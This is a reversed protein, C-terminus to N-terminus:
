SRGRVRKQETTIKHTHTRAHTHTSHTHADAHAHPTGGHPNAHAPTQARHTHPSHTIWPPPAAAHAHAKRTHAHTHIDYHGGAGHIRTRAPQQAHLNKLSAHSKKLQAGAGV